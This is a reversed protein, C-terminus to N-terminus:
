SSSISNKEDFPLCVGAFFSGRLEASSKLSSNCFSRISSSFSAEITARDLERMEARNFDKM